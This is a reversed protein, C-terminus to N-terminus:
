RHDDDGRVEVRRSLGVDSPGEAVDLAGVDRDSQAGRPPAGTRARAGAGSNARREVMEAEAICRALLAEIDARTVSM